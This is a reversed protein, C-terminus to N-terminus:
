KDRGKHVRILVAAFPLMSLEEETFARFRLLLLLYIMAGTIAVFSIYCLLAMRSLLEGPLLYDIVVIYSIMGLSAKLFAWGNVKKFFHLGPLKRQLEMFVMFGLVILSIVTAVASGTIGWLPVLVFNAAWKILFAGIIFGATRKIYGMGQLISSATIVISSLFIAIALIQLTMTGSADKYLLVNAEPLIMILGITAGAALYFSFAIAGQIYPYFTGLDSQLKQKSITPILALAFSSGLVTGLQILPQGRDFIGKDQMAELKSRGHEMLGPVLTFADAFQIVLLIMHNMAAVIGFIFVTRGYYKWPIASKEGLPPKSKRVFLGLILIAMLAGGISAIGAAEGIHYINSGQEAVLVAAFIIIFVRISQEGIQSYATPKMENSGQFVGRLLATLPILLFIFAANQYTAVLNMDGVLLALSHASLYVLLFLAVNIGALIIFVPKYFNRLSVEKGEARLDVTLKSIASPFGYLGLVMAMGLLPYVQQYIYFGIDGTLNQLPIRYGASLVKSIIGALTLLLAGKMLKNSENGGM